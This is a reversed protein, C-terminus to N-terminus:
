GQRSVGTELELVQGKAVDWRLLGGIDRNRVGERGAPAVTNAPTNAAAANISPDDAETKNVNGYLRFSFDGALPGSLNFGLRRTAGEESHEPTLTYATVSGSLQKGPAKTIINVVGGAA